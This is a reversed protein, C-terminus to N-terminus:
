RILLIVPRDVPDPKSNVQILERDDSCMEIYPGQLAIYM